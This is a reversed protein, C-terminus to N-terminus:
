TRSSSHEDGGPQRAARRSITVWLNGDKDFRRRLGSHRTGGQFVGVKYGPPVVVKSPDPTVPTRKLWQGTANGQAAAPQVWVTAATVAAVILVIRHFFTV